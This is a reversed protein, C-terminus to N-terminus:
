PQHTAQVNSRGTLVMAAVAATLTKLNLTYVHPPLLGETVDDTSDLVETARLIGTVITCLRLCLHVPQQEVHLWAGTLSHM